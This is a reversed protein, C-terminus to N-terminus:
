SADAVFSSDANEATTVDGRKSQLNKVLDKLQEIEIKYAIVQETLEKIEADKRDILQYLLEMTKNNTKMLLSLNNFAQMVADEDVSSTKALASSSDWAQNALIKSICEKPLPRIGKEVQSIFSQGVGLYEALEVQSINNIKRLAKLDITEM